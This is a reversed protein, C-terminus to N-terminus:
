LISFCAQDGKGEMNWQLAKENELTEKDFVLTTETKHLPLNRKYLETGWFQFSTSDFEM